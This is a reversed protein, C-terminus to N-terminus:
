QQYSGRLVAAEYFKRSKLSSGTGSEITMEIKVATSVVTGDSPQANSISRFVLNTVRAGSLTLPGVDVGNQKLRLIQGSVYFDDTLATGSTDTTNLYLEGPTTGFVSHSADISKADRIERVMRDLAFMASNEISKSAKTTRYAKTMIVLASILAYVIIALLAIYILTEVLSYGRSGRTYQRHPHNFFNM